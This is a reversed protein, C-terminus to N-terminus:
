VIKKPQRSHVTEDYKISEGISWLFIHATSNGVHKFNSKLRKVVKDYNNSKDISNLWNQFSGNKDIIREFERANHISAIIKRKNRIIEPNESLSTIEEAGFEAVKRFNFDRFAKKFNPWKNSVIQWSLGAQFICRTLNEFYVEDKEPKKERYVWDPYKSHVAM